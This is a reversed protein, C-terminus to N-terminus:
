RSGHGSLILRRLMGAFSRLNQGFSATRAAQRLRLGRFRPMRAGLIKMAAIRSFVLRKRRAQSPQIMAIREVPFPKTALWGGDEALRLLDAGGPTRALILSRGESESFIPYGKEDCDWADACSIDAFEGTGDPCIKCRFQVHHSLIDGWAKAYSMKRIEGDATVATAHGPWGDGRYRFSTVSSESLGMDEMIRSAGFVSPIGACFFSLLYKIHTRAELSTEMVQRVAAIDCPKGVVAFQGGRGIEQLLQQLPASPAYRSGASRWIDDATRSIQNQNRAPAEASAGIQLVRDVRGSALLFQLLASLAGGSSAHHRLKEDTAHGSRSAAIPGWLVHEAVGTSRFALSAGPCLAAISQGDPEPLTGDVVPRLYGDASYDMRISAPAISACLGCGM